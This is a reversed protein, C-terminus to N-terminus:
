LFKNFFPKIFRYCIYLPLFVWVIMVLTTDAFYSMYDVDTTDQVATNEILLETNENMLNVSSLLGDSKQIYTDMKESQSNVSDVLNTRFENESDILSQEKELDKKQQELIKIQDQEDLEIQRNETEIQIKKEAEAIEQKEIKQDKMFQLLEKLDTSIVNLDENEVIEVPEIQENVEQNDM